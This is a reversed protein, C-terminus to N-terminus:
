QNCVKLDRINLYEDMITKATHEMEEETKPAARKVNGYQSSVVPAPAPPPGREASPRLNITRPPGMPSEGERSGRPGLSRRDDRNWSNDRSSNQSRGGVISRFDSCTPHEIIM